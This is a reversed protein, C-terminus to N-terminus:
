GLHLVKPKAKNFRVLKVPAERLVWPHMDDLGMSTYVNLRM